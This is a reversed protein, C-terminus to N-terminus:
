PDEPITKNTIEKMIELVKKWFKKIVPCDWWLHAMTGVTMCGRWCEQSKEPQVKSLKDPTAYWRTLCKYNMEMTRTDIASSDLENAGIGKGM